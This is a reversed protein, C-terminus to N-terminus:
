RRMAELEADIRAQELPDLPPLPLWSRDDDEAEAEPDYKMAIGEDEWRRRKLFRCPDLAFQYDSLTLLYCGLGEMIAAKLKADPPGLKKWEDYGEAKTSKKPYAQWFDLYDESYDTSFVPRKRTKKQASPSSTNKSPEIQRNL